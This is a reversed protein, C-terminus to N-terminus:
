MDGYNVLYFGERIEHEEIKSVEVAPCYRQHNDVMIQFAAEKSSAVCMYMGYVGNDQTYIKLAGM